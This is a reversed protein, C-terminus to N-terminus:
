HFWAETAAAARLAAQALVMPVADPRRAPDPGRRPDPGTRPREPAHAAPPSADVLRLPPYDVLRLHRHSGRRNDTVSM